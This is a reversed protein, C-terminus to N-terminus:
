FRQIMIRIMAIKVMTEHNKPNREYNKDLRRHALLTRNKSATQSTGNSTTNTVNMVPCNEQAWQQFASVTETETDNNTTTNRLQSFTNEANTTFAREFAGQTNNTVNFGSSAM